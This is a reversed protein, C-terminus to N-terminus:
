GAPQRLKERLSYLEAANICKEYGKQQRLHNLLRKDGTWLLADMHMNLAVFAIDDMDVERVLPLANHWCEFPIQEESIFTIKSFIFNRANEFEDETLGSISMLRERHKHIEQRLSQGTFFEFIDSSNMLLDGIRTETNLIASFVINTDVVFKM